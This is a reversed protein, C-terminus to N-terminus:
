VAICLFGEFPARCISCEPLRHPARFREYAKYEVRCRRHMLHACRIVGYGGLEFGEQCIPCLGMTELDHRFRVFARASSVGARTVSRRVSALAGLRGVRRRCVRMVRVALGVYARLDQHYPCSRHGLHGILCARDLEDAIMVMLQYVIRFGGLSRADVAGTRLYGGSTLVL